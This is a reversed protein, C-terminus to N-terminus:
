ERNQEGDRVKNISWGANSTEDTSVWAHLLLVARGHLASAALLV